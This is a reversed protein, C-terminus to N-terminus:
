RPAQAGDLLEALRGVAFEVFPRAPILVCSARGVATREVGARREFEDGVTPFHTDNDDGVDLAELWVREGAVLVPFRRLKLRPRPTFTEAHHLFSDRNHRVGILLIRADLDRLRGFPSDAGLAFNLPQHAVVDRAHRGVAAVSAQPHTSRVSDPRTRLAEAIAGMPSPLGPHFLPVAARRARLAAEPVGGRGPEPDAVQPTFAPVVVTGTPGVATLLSEVVAPAGGDVPGLASLSSHAILTMGETVGTRRWGETLTAHTLTM